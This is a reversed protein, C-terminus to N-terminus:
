RWNGSLTFPSWYFPHAFPANPDTKFPPLTKDTATVFEDARVKQAENASYKGYMLKLQAKRMAESKSMGEKGYLRYFEVMFDKTSTDAVAWLTAMVAKAGEEQAISGFGEVEVGNSKPGGPTATNCASLVVLDIGNLPQSRLKDVTFKRDEGGGLLLFSNLDDGPTLKFHSAIHVIPYRGLEGAFNTLTFKEDLLKKGNLVGNACQPKQSLLGTAKDSVICDLEDPVASLADFGDIAKSVGVGLASLQGPLRAKDLNKQSALNIMVNSFREVMYGNKKDWLAAPPLYRLTGDMSWLIKDANIGALDAEVPKVLLDYLKQGLPRPDHQPSTLAARFDTVLANVASESIKATHARQTKSTTVIINLVDKGVIMSVAATRPENLDYLLSKLGSTVEKVRSDTPGFAVKLGELFKQFTLSADAIQQKLELYRQQKPFTEDTYSRREKELEELEKGLATIQDAISDYRTIARRENETLSLTQLMSRAVGDDRRVYEMLEEEKLMTLVQEAEAIRGQEILLSALKRYTGEITSLYTARAEPPVDAIRKRLQQFVNVASKGYFTAAGENEMGLSLDMLGTLAAAEQVPLGASRSTILSDNLLEVAKTKEGLLSHILALRQAALAELDRMKERKANRYALDLQGQARTLQVNAPIRGPGKQFAQILLDAHDILVAVSESSYYGQGSAGRAALAKAMTSRASDDKGIANQSRALYRLADMEMLKRGEAANIEAAKELVQIAGAYNGVTFDLIGIRLLVEGLLGAPAVRAQPNVAKKFYDAAKTLDFTAFYYKGWSLNMKASLAEDPNAALLLDTRELLWKANKLDRFTGAMLDGLRWTTLAELDTLKAAVAKKRADELPAVAYKPYGMKIQWEAYRIMAPISETPPKDKKLRYASLFAKNANTPNYLGAWVMGLSDYVDYSLPMPKVALSDVLKAAETLYNRARRKDEVSPDRGNFYYEGLRACIRIQQETNNLERALQLAKHLTAVGPISLEPELPPEDNNQPRPPPRRIGTEPTATTQQRRPPEAALQLHGKFFLVALLREKEGLEAYIAEAAQLKLIAAPALKLDNKKTLELAENAEHAARALKAERTDVPTQAFSATFSAMLLLATGCRLASLIGAKIKAKIMSSRIFEIAFRM